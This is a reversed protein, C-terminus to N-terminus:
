KVEKTVGIDVAYDYIHDNLFGAIKSFVEARATPDAHTFDGTAAVYDTPISRRKLADHLKKGSTFDLDRKDHDQVILTPKVLTDGLPAASLRKLIAPDFFVERLKTEYTPIATAEPTSDIWQRPSTPANIAVVCRFEEPYLQVARMAVYGGYDQGLLAVRKANIPHNAALWGVTARVDEIPITDFGERVADRHRAGLGASGRYYVTAVAFGQDALAQMEFDFNPNPGRGPLDRCVVVLPASSIRPQSPLAIMGTLHVGAPTDFAFPKTDNIEPAASAAGRRVLERSTGSARDDYTYYRGPDGPTSVLAIVRQRADDWSVITVDRRSYKAEIATQLRALAPDIWRTKARPGPLRVGVLKRQRDFVLASESFVEDPAIVDYLPDEVAFDARKKAKLDLAYLGYADRRINSAFYLLNADADFAVPFSRAGYFTELSRHFNLPTQAGLYRDFDEWRRGDPTTRYRFRQPEFVITESYEVVTLDLGRSGSPTRVLGSFDVPQRISFPLTELARGAAQQDYLFQGRESQAVLAQFKGSDINISYLTSREDARDSPVPEDAIPPPPQPVDASQAIRGRVEAQMDKLDAILDPTKDSDSELRRIKSGGGAVADPASRVGPIEVAVTKPDKLRLGLLRPQGRLDEGDALKRDNKGNADVARIQEGARDRAPLSVSYVLRGANAWVLANVRAPTKFHRQLVDRTDDEGIPIVARSEPRDVEVLVLFLQSDERRTYAVHRGDPSLAVQEVRLPQFRALLEESPKADGAAALGLTSVLALAAFLANAVGRRIQRAVKALVTPM